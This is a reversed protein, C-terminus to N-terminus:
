FQRQKLWRYMGRALRFGRYGRVGLFMLSGANRDITVFVIAAVIVGGGLWLVATLMERRAAKKANEHAAHRMADFQSVFLARREGRVSFTVGMTIPTSQTQM